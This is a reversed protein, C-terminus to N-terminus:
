SIGGSTKLAIKLGLKRLFFAMILALVGTQLGWAVFVGFVGWASALGLGIPVVLAISLAYAAFIREPRELARLASGLVFAVGLVVPYLGLPWVASSFASYQGGYLWLLLTEHTMLIILWYVLVGVIFFGSTSVVIRKFETTGRAGVLMPLLMMGIASCAHMIPMMLNHFARIAATTEFGGWLPLAVYYINEPAWMLLATAMAWRGYEWHDRMSSRVLPDKLPTKIVNLKWVLWVGSVFSAVAMVGLAHTAKLHGYSYLLLMGALMLTMYVVGAYAALLPALRAYCARRMLWQFLIFPSTLALAIFLHFFASNGYHWFGFGVLAFLLSLATSFLWHGRLLVSYYSTLRSRNKGPGFVLMPESLLATHLAGFLLFIAYAFVFAGFEQPSLWRALLINAGFNALAFLGQDLVAAVGNGLAHLDRKPRSAHRTFGTNIGRMPQSCRHADLALALCDSRM